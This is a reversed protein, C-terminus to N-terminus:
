AMKKLFLNHGLLTQRLYDWLISFYVLYAKVVSSKLLEKIENLMM